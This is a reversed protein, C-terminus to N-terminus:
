ARWQVQNGAEAWASELVRPGYPRHPYDSSHGCPSMDFTKPNGHVAPNGCVHCHFWFGPLPESGTDSCHWYGAATGRWGPRAYEPSVGVILVSHEPRALRVEDGPAGVTAATIPFAIAAKASKTIYDADTICPGVEVLFPQEGQILFDPIYGDADFPEYVWSWGVLDFFAAWRAELRSRFRTSRFMTPIGSRTAVTM